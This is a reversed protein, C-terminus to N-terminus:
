DDEYVIRGRKVAVDNDKVVIIGFDGRDEGMWEVEGSLKRGWPKLFNDIIYELWEVYEYFKEGGDWKIITWAGDEDFEVIWQCWLGPQGKPPENYELISGDADQGAHGGAGVFYAGETGVPLGVAERVPDPLDEVLVTVEHHRRGWKPPPLNELSGTARSMRRTESFKNLYTAQEETLGADLTFHGSFTTYGM